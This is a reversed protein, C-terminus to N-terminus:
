GFGCVQFKGTAIQRLISPMFSGRVLVIIDGAKAKSPVLGLHGARTLGIRRYSSVPLAESLECLYSKYNQGLACRRRLIFCFPAPANIKSGDRYEVPKPSIVIDSTPYSPVDGYCFGPRHLPM